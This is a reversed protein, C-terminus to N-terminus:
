RGVFKRLIKLEDKILAANVGLGWAAAILIAAYAAMLSLVHAILVVTRYSKRRICHM